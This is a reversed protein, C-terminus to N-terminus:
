WERENLILYEYDQSIPLWCDDCIVGKGAQWGGSVEALCGLCVYKGGMLNSVYLGFWIHPIDTM